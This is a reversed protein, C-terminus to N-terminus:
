NKPKRGQDDRPADENGNKGENPAAAGSKNDRGRPQVQGAAPSNGAGPAPAPVSAAPARQQEAPSSDTRARSSQPQAAPGRQVAQQPPASSPQAAREPAAQPAPMPAAPPPRVSSPQASRQQTSGQPAANPTAPSASPSPQASRQNPQERGGANPASPPAMAPQASRQPSGRSAPSEAAAPPATVVPTAVREPPAASPRIVVPTPVREPPQASPKTVVPTPVREPPQASPRTVVPTPVRQPPAASPSEPQARNQGNGRESPERSTRAPAAAEGPMAQRPAAQTQPTASLAGRPPRAIPSTEQPRGVVNVAAVPAAPAATPRVNRRSAEDLPMGPKAALQPQQAAFAVPAAPPATRAVVPREFTRGPPAEIAANTGRVSRQTPAVAAVAVVPANAYVDRTVRVASRSVPQSQIFVNTPVAVVAGPVQRNAYMVNTVNTNNYYNNVVSTNIVTNSRNVNEFYGRSVAYAPRYVERPGLPFWAVGGVPGSAISLQFNSGGVFAVLAPAYYARTNVPGPIWGWSGRVNAWRGYHSVAFGWPADDVWTWGWPDVWTWHGDRYPAWGAEVRNPTWVHGYTADVRWTGNADLDQYGIVDPSVYRASSSTDYRRDRDNAWRDFTDLGPMNIQEYERLGTGAFRYPQRADIVYAAGDGFVEGQGSRVIITTASGDPEVEIRYDGTRRLNFALNPTAVEYVQGPELRRLRINLTGQTLQLQVIRDDLNLVTLGTEASMRIMAGGVQVETRAGPGSWLRDATTLPRNVQAEVWADDGAPSFSVTGSLYGLRAVRSPPDALVFNSAALFVVGAALALTRLPFSRLPM